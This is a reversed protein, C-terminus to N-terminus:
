CVSGAMAGGRRATRTSEDQDMQGYWTYTQDNVNEFRQGQSLGADDCDRGDEGIAAFIFGGTRPLPDENSIIFGFDHTVSRGSPRGHWFGTIGLLVYITSLRSESL